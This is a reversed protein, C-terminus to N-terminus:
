APVQSRLPRAIRYSPEKAQRWLVPVIERYAGWLGHYVPPLDDAVEEHLDGLAHFPVNPYMHHELHYNMNWYLLRLVPNMLVTRTNRRHDLVDEDLGAHQTLGFVMVLWRGYFSPLGIFMLPLVNGAVVSWTIAGFLILLHIRSWRIAARRESEPLYTAVQPTIRGFAARGMKRLERLNSVIGVLDLAILLRPTPRPVAIEPDLGVIITDSHHRIHSWRWSVPERFVMFSAVHYLWTNMWPTRFATGHGAEHWRSDSVSGYLVGYVMFAPVAWWTGWALLVATASVGLAAFWILTDRIAPGNRRQVLQKMRARPVPSRYWEASELGRQAALAAEPGTLSYERRAAPATVYFNPDITM